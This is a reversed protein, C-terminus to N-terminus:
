FKFSLGGTLYSIGYGVEGFFAVNKVFYWRAGAFLSYAPYALSSTQKYLNKNEPRPDNTDYSYIRFSAGILVGAYVEAKESNLVDWHYAARGAVMMNTWRHEYYYMGLDYSSRYDSKYRATQFGLYAGVGLYGPGLRQKWPQEYSVSFAPTQHYSGGIGKYYRVNGFGVGLNVIHTNEDFCGGGGSSKEKITVSKEIPNFAFSTAIIVMSAILTTLKKM